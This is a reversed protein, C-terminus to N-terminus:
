FKAPDARIKGIIGIIDTNQNIPHVWLKREKGYDLLQLFNWLLIVTEEEEGDLLHTYSVAKICYKLANSVIITKWDNNGEGIKRTIPLHSVLEVM